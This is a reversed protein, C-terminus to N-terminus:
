DARIEDVRWYKDITYSYSDGNLAPFVARAHRAPHNSTKQVRYIVVAGVSVTIAMVYTGVQRAMSGKTVRVRNSPLMPEGSIPSSRGTRGRFSGEAILM